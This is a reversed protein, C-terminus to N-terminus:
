WKARRRASSCACHSIRRRAQSISLFAFFTIGSVSRKAQPLSPKAQRCSFAKGRVHDQKFLLHMVSLLGKCIRRKAVVNLEKRVGNIPDATTTAKGTIALSSDMVASAKLQTAVEKRRAAAM